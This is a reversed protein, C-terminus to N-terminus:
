NKMTIDNFYKLAEKRTISRVAKKSNLSFTKKINVKTEM